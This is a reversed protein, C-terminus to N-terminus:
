VGCYLLGIDGLWDRLIAQRQNAYDTKSDVFSRSYEGVSESKIQKGANVENFFSEAIECTCYKVEESIIEPVNGFTHKKVYLSAKTLYFPLSTTDIVAEKGQLYASYDDKTAYNTM